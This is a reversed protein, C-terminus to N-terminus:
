YGDNFYIHCNECLDSGNNCVAIWVWGLNMARCCGGILGDSLQVCVWKRVYPM